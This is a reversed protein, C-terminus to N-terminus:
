QRLFRVEYVGPQLYTGPVVPLWAVRTRRERQFTVDNVFPSLTAEKAEGTGFTMEGEGTTLRVGSICWYPPLWWWLSRYRVQAVDVSVVGDTSVSLTSPAGRDGTGYGGHSVGAIPVLPWATLLLRGSREETVRVFVVSLTDDCMKFRNARVVTIEGVRSVIHDFTPLGERSLFPLWVMWWLVVLVGFAGGICARRWCATGGGLVIGVGLAGACGLLIGPFDFLRVGIPSLFLVCACAGTLFSLLIPVVVRRHFRRELVTRRDASRPLCTGILTGFLCFAVSVWFSRNALLDVIWM